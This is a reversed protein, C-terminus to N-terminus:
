YVSPVRSDLTSIKQTKECWLAEGAAFTAIPRLEHLERTPVGLPSQDLWVFSARAGARISGWEREAHYQWAGHLTLARIAEFVSARECVGPVIGRATQREVAACLMFIPDPIADAHAGGEYLSYLVGARRASALPTMRATYEMGYVALYDDGRRALVDAAFCPLIGLQRITEMDIPSLLRADSLVLRSAILEPCVRSMAKTVRLLQAVAEASSAKANLTVGEAAAMRLAYGVARDCYALTGTAEGGDDTVDLDLSMGCLCIEGRVGVIARKADEYDDIDAIAMLPLPLECHSLSRLREATAGRGHLVTIGRAAYAEAARCVAQKLARSGHRFGRGPSEHLIKGTVAWFDSGCDVFGPMLAGGDLDIIEAQRGAFRSLARLEGVAIIREGETLVAEAPHPSEMTLIDGNYFLKRM